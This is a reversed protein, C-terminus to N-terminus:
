VAVEFHSISGDEDPVREVAKPLRALTDDGSDIGPLWVRDHEGIDTETYIMTDSFIEDGDDNVTVTRRREVRAAIGTTPAAYSLEGFDSPSGFQSAVAITQNLLAALQPDLTM